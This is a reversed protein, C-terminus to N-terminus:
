MNKRMDSGIRIVIDYECLFPNDDICVLNIPDEFMPTMRRAIDRAAEEAKPMYIVTVGSYTGLNNSSAVYCGSKSVTEEILSLEQRSLSNTTAFVSFKRTTLDVNILRSSGLRLLKVKGVDNQIAFLLAFRIKPGPASFVPSNDSSPCSFKSVSRDGDLVGIGICQSRQDTGNLYYELSFDNPYVVVKNNSHAEMLLVLYRYASIDNFSRMSNDAIIKTAFHSHIVKLNELDEAQATRINASFFLFFFLFFGVSVSLKTKMLSDEKKKFL